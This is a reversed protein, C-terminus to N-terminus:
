DGFLANCAIDETLEADPYSFCCVPVAVDCETLIKVITLTCGIIDASSGDITGIRSAFAVETEITYPCTPLTLMLDISDTVSSRAWGQTGDAAVFRVLVPFEFGVSIRSRTSGEIAMVSQSPIRAAGSFDASIYTLPPEPAPPQFDSLALTIERRRRRRAGDFIRTVRIAIKRRDNCCSM